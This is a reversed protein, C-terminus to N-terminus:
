NIYDLIFKQIEFNVADKIMNLKINHLKPLM